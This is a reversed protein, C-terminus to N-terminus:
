NLINSRANEIKKGSSDWRPARFDIDYVQWEGAPRCANHWQSLDGDKGLLVTGTDTYEAMWKLKM